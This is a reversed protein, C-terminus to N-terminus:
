PPADKEEAERRVATWNVSVTGRGLGHLTYIVLGPFLTWAIIAFLPTIDSLFTRSLFPYCFMLLYLGLFALLIAPIFVFRYFPIHGLTSPNPYNYRSCMLAALGLVLLAILLPNDLFIFLILAGVAGAPSPMGIFDAKDALDSKIKELRTFRALRTHVATFFAVAVAGVALHAAVPHAMFGHLALLGSLQFYIVCSAALGFTSLDMSSDLCAGFESLTNFKRALPGDVADCLGAALLWFLPVFPAASPLDARPMAFFVATVGCLYNGVTFLNPILRLFWPRRPLDPDAPAYSNVYSFSAFFPFISIVTFFCMLLVGWQVLPAPLARLPLELGLVVPLAPSRLVLIYLVTFQLPTKIKGLWRASVDRGQRQLRARQILSIVERAALLIFAWAALEGRWFAATCLCLTVFKDSAPDLSKGDATVVNWKRAFYGDLGDFLCVLLFALHATWVGPTTQLAPLAVVLLIWLGLPIRLLSMANPVQPTYRGFWPHPPAGNLARRRASHLTFLRFIVFGIAAIGLLRLLHLLLDEM